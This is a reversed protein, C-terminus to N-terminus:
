DVVPHKREKMCNIYTRHFVSGNMPTGDDAYMKTKTKETLAKEGAQEALAHCAVLDSQLADIHADNATDITPTWGNEHAACATLLTLFLLHLSKKSLL